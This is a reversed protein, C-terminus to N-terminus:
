PTPAPQPHKMLIAGDGARLSISTVAPSTIGDARLPYFKGELPVTDSFTEYADKSTNWYAPRHLVIANTFDRRWIDPGGGIDKGKKWQFDRAGKNYGRPDPEGIDVGMAPFYTGWRKVEEISPIRDVSQHLVKGDKLIVEDTESYIYGGRSYYSFITNENMGTYHKSLAAIPGRNAQDWPAKRSPVLDATDQYILLGKVGKPNHQPLYDDYTMIESSEDRTILRHSGTNWVFTHYEALNWDGKQVLRKRQSNVGVQVRSDSKRIYGVIAEYKAVNEDGWKNKTKQVFDTQEPPIGEATVNGDGDDCMVGTYGSAAVKKLVQEAVFKAWTRYQIDHYAQIDSPNAIFHNIGWFSIRAQYRFKASAYPPPNPNYALPGNNVINPDADDWGRCANGAGNLWDEGYIRSTVPFVDAGEFTLRVFYKRRSNNVSVTQWNAPPIFTVAGNQVFGATDDQIRLRQWTTGDWYEVFFKVGRGPRDLELRIEAFPEEYGVYVTDSLPVKGKYAKSTLDEFRKHNKTKLIGNKGEFADFRDLEKFAVAVRSTYNKGAHLLMDEYAFGYTGAFDKMELYEGLSGLGYIDIYTMWRLGSDSPRSGSIKETFREDIWAAVKPSNQSYSLIAYNHLRKRIRPPEDTNRPIIEDATATAPSVAVPQDMPLLTGGALEITAKADIDFLLQVLLTNATLQHYVYGEGPKKLEGNVRIQPTKDTGYDHIKFVPKIKRSKDGNVAFALEGRDARLLYCGEAVDFGKDVMSGRSVALKHDGRYDEAYVAAVERSNIDPLLASGRTGLQMMYHQTIREGKKLAVKGTQYYFRKFGMWEHHMQKGQWPNEPQPVLMISAKTRSTYPAPTAPDWYMFLYDAPEKQWGYPDQLDTSRIWGYRDHRSVISYSGDRLPLNGSIRKRLKLTNTSNSVIEWANYGPQNLRYGAWQDTKWRKSHDSVEEGTVVLEEGADGNTTYSPDGLGVVSNRWQDLSQDALSQMTNTIFIKGTPYIVYRTTFKLNRNVKTAIMPHYSCEVIARLANSEIIRIERAENPLYKGASIIHGILDGPFIVQNFLAGQKLDRFHATVDRAIDTTAGKDNVLDFWTSLGYNYAAEFALRFQGSSEVTVAHNISGSGSSSIKMGGHGAHCCCSMVFFVVPALMSVLRCKLTVVDFRKM